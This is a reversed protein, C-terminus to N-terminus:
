AFDADWPPLKQTMPWRSSHRIQTYLLLLPWHKRYDRIDIYIQDPDHFYSRPSPLILLPSVCYTSRVTVLRTAPYHTCPRSLPWAFAIRHGLRTPRVLHEFTSTLDLATLKISNSIWLEKPTANPTHYSRQWYAVLSPPNQLTQTSKYGFTITYPITGGVLWILRAPWHVVRSPGSLMKSLHGGFWVPAQFELCHYFSVTGVFDLM